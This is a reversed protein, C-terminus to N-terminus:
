GSCELARAALPHALYPTATSSRARVTASPIVIRRSALMTKDASLRRWGRPSTQIDRTGEQEWAHLTGTRGMGCMVEDLILARDCIERVARFEEPPCAAGPRAWSLSAIFAAV